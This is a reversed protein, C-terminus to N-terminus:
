STGDAPPDSQEYTFLYTWAGYITVVGVMTVWFMDGNYLEVLTWAASAGIMLLRRWLPDLFPHSQKNAM